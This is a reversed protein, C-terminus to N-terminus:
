WKREILFKLRNTVDDGARDPRVGLPAGDSKRISIYARSDGVTHSFRNRDILTNASTTYYSGYTEIDVIEEEAVFGHYNRGFIFNNKIQVDKVGINHRFVTTYPGSEDITGSVEFETKGNVAYSISPILTYTNRVDVEGLFIAPEVALTSYKGKYMLSRNIDYYYMDEPVYASVPATFSTNYICTPLVVLDDYYSDYTNNVNSHPNGIYLATPKIIRVVSPVTIQNSGDLFLRYYQGDYTIVIYVWTDAVISTSSATGNCISWSSGNGLYMEVKNASSMAIGLSYNADAHLISHATGVGQTNYWFGVTFASTNFDMKLKAHNASYVSAPRRLSYTGFKARFSSRGAQTASDSGSYSGVIRKGYYDVLRNGILTEFDFYCVGPHKIYRYELATDPVAATYTPTYIIASTTRSVSLYKVYPWFQFNAIYGSFRNSSLDPDCGFILSDFYPVRYDNYALPINTTYRLEGNVLVRLINKDFTMAISYTSSTNFTASSPGSIGVGAIIWGTGTGIYLELINSSNRYLRIGYDGIKNTGFILESTGLFNFKIDFEFTWEDLESINLSNPTLIAYDGPNGPFEAVTTSGFISVNDDIDASGFFAFTNNYHDIFYQVGIAAPSDFTACIKNERDSTLFRGYLPEIHSVIPSLSGNTERKIGLFNVYKNDLTYPIDAVIKEIYNVEEGTDGYGNAISVILPTNASAIINAVSPSTVELFDSNYKNKRGALIIQRKGNYRSGDSTKISDTVIEPTITKPAITVGAAPTLENITDTKIGELMEVQQGGTFSQIQNASLLPYNSGNDGQRGLSVFMTSTSLKSGVWIAKTSIPATAQLEGAVTISLWRDGIAGAIPSSSNWIGFNLIEVDDGNNIVGPTIVVGLLKINDTNATALLPKVKSDATDFYVWTGEALGSGATMTITNQTAKTNTRKLTIVIKNSAVAVGVYLLSGSAVTTLGGAVSPSAWIEDGINWTWGSFTATGTMRVSGAEGISKTEDAIGICTRAKEETDATDLIGTGNNLYVLSGATYGGPGAELQVSDLEIVMSKHIKDTGSM